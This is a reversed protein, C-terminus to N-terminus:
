AHRENTPVGRQGSVASTGRWVDLQGVRRALWVLPQTAAYWARAWFTSEPIEARLRRWRGGLSGVDGVTGEAAVICWGVRTESRGYRYAARIRQAVSLVYHHEVWAEPEYYVRAGMERLNLDILYDDYYWSTSDGARAALWAQRRFTRNGGFTFWAWGAQDVRTGLPENLRNFREVHGLYQKQGAVNTRPGPRLGGGVGSTEPYSVYVRAYSALWGPPAVCDDDLFVVIEGESNQVGLLRAMGWGQRQQRLYRVRGQEVLSALGGPIGGRGGDDVVIVEYRESPFEQSLVSQVCADLLRPRDFTPTIVSFFPQSCMVSDFLVCM